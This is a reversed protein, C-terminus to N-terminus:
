YCVFNIIEDEITPLFSLGLLSDALGVSNDTLYLRSLRQRQSRTGAMQMKM